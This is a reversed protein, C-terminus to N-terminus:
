FVSRPYLAKRGRLGYSRLLYVSSLTASIKTRRQCHFSVHALINTIKNWRVQNLM